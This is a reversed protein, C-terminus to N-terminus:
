QTETSNVLNLKHSVGTGEGNCYLISPNSFPRSHVLSLPVYTWKDVVFFWLSIWLTWLSICFWQLFSFCFLWLCLTICFYLVDIFLSHMIAVSLFLIDMILHLIVMFVHLSIMSVFRICLFIFRGCSCILEFYLHLADICFTSVSIDYLSTFFSRVYLISMSFASITISLHLTNLFLHMVAVSLDWVEMVCHLPVRFLHLTSAFLQLFM